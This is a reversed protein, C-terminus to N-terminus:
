AAIVQQVAEIVKESTFGFYKFLDGAPASEGFRDIGIVQGDLGVYKRWYDTVGAEVAVRATVDSPLVSERYAKDQADFRECCPMSVLRVKKGSNNLERAATMAIGVESGTAILIADPKGDCDHLVYGGKEIAAMQKADRSQHDLNQRSFILTSPGDAREISAKWAVASEVADAPRWVDMNPMLRLTSTQEVPQHTPGDEGLGISDHTFVFLSRVKMLAAMRLANRAYESFMLFTAGYPIFGGHLAIGNMIASMGFERVGYYIYNGDTVTNSLGKSGSWLTLNSGALDASRLTLGPAHRPASM